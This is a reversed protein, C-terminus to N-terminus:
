WEKRGADRLAREVDEVSRAVVAIGGSRQVARRWKEQAERTRGKSSKCEISVFQGWPAVAFLDAQGEIGFRMYRVVKRWGALGDDLFAHVARKVLAEPVLFGSAVNHRWVLWGPRAGFHAHIEQQAKSERM